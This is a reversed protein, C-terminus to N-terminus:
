QSCLVCVNICPHCVPTIETFRSLAAVCGVVVAVVVWGGASCGSRPHLAPSAPSAPCAPSSPSTGYNVGVPAARGYTRTDYEVGEMGYDIQYHSLLRTAPTPNHREAAALLLTTVDDLRPIWGVVTNLHAPDTNTFNTGDPSEIEQM